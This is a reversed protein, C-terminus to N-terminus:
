KSKIIKKILKTRSEEKITTNLLEKATKQIDENIENKADIAKKLSSKYQQESTEKKTFKDLVIIDEENETVEIAGLFDIRLSDYMDNKTLKNNYNVEYNDIGRFKFASYGKIKAYGIGKFKGEEEQVALLEGDTVVNKNERQRSANFSDRDADQGNNYSENMREIEQIGFASSMFKATEPDNLSFCFVNGCNNFMDSVADKTWSVNLGAISQMGLNVSVGKGGGIRLLSDALVPIKPLTGLEDLVFFIRRNQETEREDEEGSSVAKKGLLQVVLAIIPSIADQFEPFNGLFLKVKGKQNLFDEIIFEKQKYNNKKAEVEGKALIDLIKVGAKLTKLIDGASGSSGNTKLFSAALSFQNAGTKKYLAIFNKYLENESYGLIMKLLSEYNRYSHQGNEDKYLYCHLLLAKLVEIATLNWFDDKSDNSKSFFASAILDLDTGYDMNNFVNFYASNKYVPCLFIDKDKNFFRTRFDNKVDAIIVKCYENDDFNKEISTLLSNFISSTKGSRSAGAVFTHVTEQERPIYFHTQNENIKDKSDLAIKIRFKKNITEM